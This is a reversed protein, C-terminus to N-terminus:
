PDDQLTHAVALWMSAMHKDDALILTTYVVSAKAFTDIIIKGDTPHDYYIIPDEDFECPHFADCQDSLFTTDPYNIIKNRIHKLQQLFAEPTTEWANYKDLNSPNTSSEMNDIAVDLQKVVVSCKHGHSYSVHWINKFLSSNFSVYLDIDSPHNCAGARICKDSLPTPCNRLEIGHGM